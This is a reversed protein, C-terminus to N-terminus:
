SLLTITYHVRDFHGKKLVCPLYKKNESQSIHAEWVDLQLFVRGLFM